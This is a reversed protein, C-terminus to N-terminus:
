YRHRALVRDALSVGRDITRQAEQPSRATDLGRGALTYLRFVEATRPDGSVEPRERCVSYLKVVRSAFPALREESAERRRENSRSVRYAALPLLVAYCVYGAVLSAGYAVEAGILGLHLALLVPGLAAFFPGVSVALGLAM